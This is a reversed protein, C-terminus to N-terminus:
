RQTREFSLGGALFFCYVAVQGTYFNIFFGAIMMSPILLVAVRGFNSQRNKVSEKLILLIISIFLMVGILGFEEFIDLYTNETWRNPGNDLRNQTSPGAAGAGRGLLGIEFKEKIIRNYQELRMDTSLGHNFIQSLTQSKKSLYFIGSVLVVLLIFLYSIKVFSLKYKFIALYLLLVILGIWASRSFTLILILASFFLIPKYHKIEERWGLLISIIVLLYLGLANPGALVSALRNIKLAGVLNISELAGAGSLVSVTPLKFGLLELIALVIVILSTGIITKVIIRIEKKELKSTILTLMLLMPTISFKAGRFWQATSAQVWFYSLLIVFIYVLIIIPLPKKFNDIKFEFLSVLFLSFVLIDRILSIEPRGTLSVLWASFPLFIVLAEILWFRIKNRNIKQM